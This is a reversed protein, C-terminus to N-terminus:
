ADLGIESDDIEPEEDESPSDGDTDGVLAEAAEETTQEDDEDSDDADAVLADAAAEQEEDSVTQEDLAQEFADEDSPRATMTINEPAEYEDNDADQESISALVEHSIYTTEVADAADSYVGYNGTTKKQSLDLSGGEASVEFAAFEGLAEAATDAIYTGVLQQQEDGDPSDYVAYNETTKSRQAQVTTTESM